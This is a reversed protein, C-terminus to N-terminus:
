EDSVFGLFSVYQKLVEDRDLFRMAKRERYSKGINGLLNMRVPVGRDICMRMAQLINCPLERDIWHGMYTLTFLRGPPSPEVRVVGHDEAFSPICVTPLGRAVAWDVWFRSIGILGDLQPLVLRRHALLDITQGTLVLRPTPAFWEVMGSCVAVGRQRCIRWVVHSFQWYYSYIIVLDIQYQELLAVLNKAYYRAASRMLQIYRPICSRFRPSPFVHVALGDKAYHEQGVTCTDFSRMGVLVTQIGHMRLALAMRRLRNGAASPYDLSLATAILIRM